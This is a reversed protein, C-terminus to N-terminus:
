LQNGITVWGNRLNNRRGFVELFCANDPAFAEIMDYFDSPKQSQCRKEGVFATTLKEWNFHRVDGKVAIICDEKAHQLYYGHGRAMLRNSSMKLWTICDLIEFGQGELWELAWILKANIVWMFIVGNGNLLQGFPVNNLLIKDTIQDYNLAVGRTSKETALTWPPDTVIVDFLKGGSFLKHAAKFRTWDFTLVNARIPISLPPARWFNQDSKSGHVETIRIEQHWHRFKQVWWITRWYDITRLYSELEEEDLRGMEESTLLKELPCTRKQLADMYQYLPVPEHITRFEEPILDKVPAFTNIEVKGPHEKCEKLGGIMEMFPIKMKGKAVEANFEAKKEESLHNFM